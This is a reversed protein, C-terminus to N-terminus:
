DRIATVKQGAAAAVAIYHLPAFTVLCEDGGSWVSFVVGVFCGKWVVSFVGFVCEGVDM